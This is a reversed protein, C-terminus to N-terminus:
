LSFDLNKNMKKIMRRRQRPTFTVYFGTGRYLKKPDRKNPYLRQLGYINARDVNFLRGDRNAM